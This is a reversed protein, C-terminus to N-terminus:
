LCKHCNIISYRFCKTVFVCLKRSLIPPSFTTYTAIICISVDKRSFVNDETPSSDKFVAEITCGIGNIKAILIFRTHSTTFFMQKTRRGKCIALRSQRNVALVLRDTLRMFFSQIGTKGVKVALNTFIEYLFPNFDRNQSSLEFITFNFRNWFPVLEVLPNAFM